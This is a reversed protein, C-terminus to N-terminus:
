ATETASYVGVGGEEESNGSDEFEGKEIDEADMKAAREQIINSYRDVLDQDGYSQAVSMVAAASNMSQVINDAKVMADLIKDKKENDVDLISSYMYYDIAYMAKIKENTETDMKEKLMAVIDEISVGEELTFNAMVDNVGEEYKATEEETPLDGEASAPTNNNGSNNNGRTALIVVIAIVLGVIVVGIASFLIIWKSKTTLKRASKPKKGVKEVEM